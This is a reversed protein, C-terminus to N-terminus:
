PVYRYSLTKPYPPFIQLWKGYAPKNRDKSAFFEYIRVEQPPMRGSRVGGILRGPPRWSSKTSRLYPVLRLVLCLGVYQGLYSPLYSVLYPVLYPVELIMDPIMHTVPFITDVGNGVHYSM